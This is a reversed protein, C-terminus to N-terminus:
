HPSSSGKKTEEILAKNRAHEDLAKRIWAADSSHPYSDLLQKLKGAEGPEVPPYDWFPKQLFRALKKDHSLAEWIVADDGQPARIVIKVVNSSLAGFTSAVWAKAFYTGPKSFPFDRTADTAYQGTTLCYPRRPRV